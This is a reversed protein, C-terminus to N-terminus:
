ATQRLVPCEFPEDTDLPIVRRLVLRQPGSDARQVCVAALHEPSPQMQWFRWNIPSDNLKADISIAINRAEPSTFSFQDLPISLGEGKAKIYSEKLTWYHFFGEQQKDPPIARLAAAEASSFFHDAIDLSVQRHRINEVDVGIERDRAVACVILGETHSINFSLAGASDDDSQIAPRGYANNLFRWHEPKVVTYRSLVTRVLARTILYQRQHKAFHFRREQAREEDTLLKRYDALLRTERVDGDFTFWLHIQDSPLELM